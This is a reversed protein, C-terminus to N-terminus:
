GNESRRTFYACGSGAPRLTLLDGRRYNLSHKVIALRVRVREGRARSVGFKERSM